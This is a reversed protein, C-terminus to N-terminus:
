GEERQKRRKMIYDNVSMVYRGANRWLEEYLEGDAVNMNKLNKLKDRLDVVVATPTKETEVYRYVGDMAEELGTTGLVREVASYATGTEFYDAAIAVPHIEMVGMISKRAGYRNVKTLLYLIYVLEVPTPMFLVAKGVFLTGPLVIKEIYLAGTGGTKIGGMGTTHTVEDVANGTRPKYRDETAYAPDGLLRSALNYQVDGGTVAGMLVDVPCKMCRAEGTGKGGEEIGPSIGCRFFDYKGYLGSFEKFVTERLRQSHEKYLSRLLEMYGRLMAAKFRRFILTPVAKESKGVKIRTLIIDDESETRLVAEATTRGVWYITVNKAVPKVSEATGNYEHLYKKLAVYEKEGLVEKLLSEAKV